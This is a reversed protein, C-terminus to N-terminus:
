RLTSVQGQSPVQDLGGPLLQDGAKIVVAASLIFNELLDACM